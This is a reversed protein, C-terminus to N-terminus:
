AAEPPKLLPRENFATLDNQLAAKGIWAVRWVCNIWRVGTAPLPREGSKAARKLPHQSQIM